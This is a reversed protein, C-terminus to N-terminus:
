QGRRESRREADDTDIVEVIEGDALQIYERKRKEDGAHREERDGEAPPPSQPNQANHSLLLYAAMLMGGFPFVLIYAALTMLLARAGMDGVALPPFIVALVWRLWMPTNNQPPNAM